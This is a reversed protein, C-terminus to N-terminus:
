NGSDVSEKLKGSPNRVKTNWQQDILLVGGPQTNPRELLYKPDIGDGKGDVPSAIGELVSAGRAHGVVLHVGPDAVRKKMEPVFRALYANLPEGDPASVDPNKILGKFEPLVDAVKQGALSGTNWDRINSDLIPAIGLEKGIIQASEAARPLDSSHFSDPQLSIQSAADKAQARGEATLPVPLWGRLREEHGGKNLETKGHRVYILM